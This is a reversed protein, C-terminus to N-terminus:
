FEPIDKSFLSLPTACQSCILPFQVATYCELHDLSSKNNSRHSEWQSCSSFQDLSKGIPRPVCEYELFCHKTIQNYGFHTLLYLDLVSFEVGLGCYVITFPVQGWDCPTLAGDTLLHSWKQVRRGQGGNMVSYFVAERNRARECWLPGCNNDLSGIDVM